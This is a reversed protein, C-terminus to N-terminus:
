AGDEISAVIPELQEIAHLILEFDVYDFERTLAHYIMPLIPIQKPYQFPQNEDPGFLIPVSRHVAAPFPMRAIRKTLADTSPMGVSPADPPTVGLNLTSGAGLLVTLRPKM